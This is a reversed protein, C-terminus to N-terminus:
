WAPAGRRAGAADLTLPEADLRLEGAVAVLEPGDGSAGDGGPEFGDRFLVVVTTASATDNAPDGDGVAQVAAEVTILDDAPAGTVFALWLWRGRCRRDAGAKPSASGETCSRILKRMVRDERDRHFLSFFGAFRNRCPKRARIAAPPHLNQSPNSVPAFVPLPAALAAGRGDRPHRHRAPPLAEQGTPPGPSHIRDCERCPGVGLGAADDRLVGM